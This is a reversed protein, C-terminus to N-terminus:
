NTLERELEETNPELVSFKARYSHTKRYPHFPSDNIGFIGKLAKGLDSIRKRYALVVQANPDESAIEGNQAAFLRFLDWSLNPHKPGKRADWFGLEAFNKAGVPKGNVVIYVTDSGLLRFAVKEWTTGAPVDLRIGRRPPSVAGLRERLEKLKRLKQQGVNQGALGLAIQVKEHLEVLQDMFENLEEALKRAATPSLGPYSLEGTGQSTGPINQTEGGHHVVPATDGITRFSALIEEAKAVHSDSRSMARKITIPLAAPTGASKKVKSLHEIGRLARKLSKRREKLDQLIPEAPSRKRNTM